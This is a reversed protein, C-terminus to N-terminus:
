SPSPLPSGCGSPPICSWGRRPPILSEPDHPPITNWAKLCADNVLEEADQESGTIRLAVYHCYRGYKRQTEAIAEEDRDLYLGIIDRDDVTIEGKKKPDIHLQLNPNISSNSLTFIGM